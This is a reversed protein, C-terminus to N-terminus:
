GEAIKVAEALDLTNEYLSRGLIAGSVGQVEMAKLKKIDDLTAIGGSAIVPIPSQQGMEALASYNPGTLMGDRAIDTYIVCAAGRKSMEQALDVAKKEGTEVWGRVAVFGDKADIGVAVRDPFEDSLIQVLEPEELAKTGLVVRGAGLTLYIEATERSRIGGGIQVPVNVSQMIKEIMATNTPEGTLAGDLDVVHLWPAGAAVWKEAAEVPNDYYVTVEDFRGQKLRVAKGDKLDIAPYLIM